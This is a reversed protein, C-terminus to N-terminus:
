VPEYTKNFIENKCPYLEGQLGRVIWDGPLALHDGELTKITVTGDDNFRLRPAVNVPRGFEAWQVLNQRDGTLGSWQVAEKVVPKTRYFAM